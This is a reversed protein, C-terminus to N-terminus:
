DLGLGLRFGTIRVRVKVRVKVRVVVKVMVMIMVIVMVMVVVWPPCMVKEPHACSKKAKYESM